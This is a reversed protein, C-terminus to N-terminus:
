QYFLNRMSINIQKNQLWSNVPIRDKWLVHTLNGYTHIIDSHNIFSVESKRPYFLEIVFPSVRSQITHISCLCTNRSLRSSTSVLIDLSVVFDHISLLVNCKCLWPGRDHGHTQTYLYAPLGVTTSLLTISVSPRFFKYAKHHHTNRPLGICSQTILSILLSPLACGPRAPNRDNM